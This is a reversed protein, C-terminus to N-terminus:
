ALYQWETYGVTGMGVVGGVPVEKRVSTLIAEFEDIRKVKYDASTTKVYIHEESAKLLLDIEISVEDRGIFMPVEIKISNPLEAYESKAHGEINTTCTMGNRAGNKVGRYMVIETSARLQSLICILDVSSPEVVDKKNAMLFEVFPEIELQKGIVNQTWAQMRPHMKPRFMVCERGLKADEDLTAALVINEMDALVVCKDGAYAALYKLFTEEDHFIHARKSSEKKVPVLPEIRKHKIVVQLQDGSSGELAKKAIDIVTSRGEEVNEMFTKLAVESM